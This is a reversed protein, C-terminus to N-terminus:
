QTEAVRYYIESTTRLFFHTSIEGTGEIGEAEVVWNELDTSSQIEYIKGSQSDWSIGMAPAIDISIPEAKQKAFIPTLTAGAKLIITAPNTTFEEDGYTWKVFEFGEEPEATVSVESGVPYNELNPTISISGNSIDPAIEERSQAVNWTAEYIGAEFGNDGQVFFLKSGHGPWNDSIVPLWNWASASNLESGLGFRDLDVPASFTDEKTERTAIKIAGTSGQGDSFAHYFVALGDSSFTTSGEHKSGTSLALLRKQNGFPESLSSRDVQYLDFNTGKSFYLTLGDSSLGPDNIARNSSFELKRPNAWPADRHERTATWFSFNAFDATGVEGDSTWNSEFITTLGDSSM